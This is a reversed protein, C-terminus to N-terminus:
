RIQFIHWLVRNRSTLLYNYSFSLRRMTGHELTRDLLNGLAAAANARVVDDPGEALQKILVDVADGHATEGLALASARRADVKGDQVDKPLIEMPAEVGLKLLAITGIQRTTLDQAQEEYVGLLPKAAKEDGSLGAASMAYPMFGLDHSWEKLKPVLKEALGADGLLGLALAGAAFFSPDKGYHDLYMFLAPVGKADGQLGLALAAFARVDYQEKELRQIMFPTQKPDQQRGLSLLTFGRTVADKKNEAGERLAQVVADGRLNGLALAIAQTVEADDKKLSFAQVLAKAAAESGEQRGLSYASMARLLDKGKRNKLILGLAEIAKPDRIDGLAMAVALRVGLAEDEKTLVGLMGAPNEGLFGLALAAYSRSVEHREKDLLTKELLDASGKDGVLGLALLALDRVDQESDKEMLRRLEPAEEPGAVKGLAVVSQQRVNSNADSFAKKLAAIAKKRAGDEAVVQTGSGAEAEKMKQRAIVFYLERNADWWSKWSSGVTTISGGGGPGGGPCFAWLASGTAVGCLLGLGLVLRTGWTRRM